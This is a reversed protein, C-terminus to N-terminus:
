SPAHVANQNRMSSDRIARLTETLCQWWDEEEEPWDWAFVTDGEIRWAGCRDAACGSLRDLLQRDIIAQAQPSSAYVEFGPALAHAHDIQKENTLKLRAKGGM